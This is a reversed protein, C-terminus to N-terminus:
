KFKRANLKIRMGLNNAKEYICEVIANSMDNANDNNEIEIITSSMLTKYEEKLIEM